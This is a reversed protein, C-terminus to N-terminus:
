IINIIVKLILFKCSGWRRKAKSLKIYPNINESVPIGIKKLDNKVDIFINQLVKNKNM